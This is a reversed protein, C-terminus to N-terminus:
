EDGDSPEALRFWVQRGNPRNEFNEEGRLEFLGEPEIVATYAGIRVTIEAGDEPRLVAAWEGTWMEGPGDPNAPGEELSGDPYLYVIFARVGDIVKIWRGSFAERVWGEYISTIAIVDLDEVTELERLLHRYVHPDVLQFVYLQGATDTSQKLEHALGLVEGVERGTPAGLREPWHLEALSGVPEGPVLVGGGEGLAVVSVLADPDTGLMEALDAGRVRDLQTGDVLILYGTV